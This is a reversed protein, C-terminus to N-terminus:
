DVNWTAFTDSTKDLKLLKSSLSVLPRVEDIVSHTDGYSNLLFDADVYDGNVFYVDFNM